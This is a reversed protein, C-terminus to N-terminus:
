TLTLLAGAIVWVILIKEINKLQKFFLIVTIWFYFALELSLTWYVGDIHSFGLYEQIMSLNVLLTFLDQERGPLSAFYVVTFTLIVSCWYVPFLRSFRSFIFDFPQDSRSITWYIVFGSIMFFLNVGYVGLQVFSPVPFAHSYLNNYHYIYHYLVVALAAIGRLGDLESLRYSKM